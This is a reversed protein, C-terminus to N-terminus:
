SGPAGTAARADLEDRGLAMVVRYRGVIERIAAETRERVRAHRADQEVRGRVEDLDPARAPEQAVVMVLHAGYPSEFPGRWTGEDPELAFIAEALPAGFHSRVYDPTREVYNVHYPFRDGHRPAESFLAGEANLRALDARARARAGEWGRREADYFVHTFSAHAEVLYDDRHAEFFRELEAPEIESGTEAFGEAIFELKQV